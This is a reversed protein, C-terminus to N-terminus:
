RLGPDLYRFPYMLAVRGISRALSLQVFPASVAQYTWQNYKNPETDVSLELDDDSEKIWDQHLCSDLDVRIATRLCNLRTKTVGFVDLQPHVCSLSFFLYFDLVPSVRFCITFDLKKREAKEDGGCVMVAVGQRRHYGEFITCCGQTKGGSALM